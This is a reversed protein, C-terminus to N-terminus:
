MNDLIHLRDMLILFVKYIAKTFNSETVTAGNYFVILYFYTYSCLSIFLLDENIIM